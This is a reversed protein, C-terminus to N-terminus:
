LCRHIWHGAKIPGNLFSDAPCVDPHRHWRRCYFHVFTFYRSVSAGQAGAAGAPGPDGKTGQPCLLCTLSKVGVAVFLNWLAASSFLVCEPDQKCYELEYQGRYCHTWPNTDKDQSLIVHPKCNMGVYVQQLLSLHRKTRTTACVSVHPWDQPWLDQLSAAAQLVVFLSLRLWLM